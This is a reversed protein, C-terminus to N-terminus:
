QTAESPSMDRSATHRVWVTEQAELDADETLWVRASHGSRLFGSASDCAGTLDDALVLIQPTKLQPNRRPPAPNPSFPEQLTAATTSSSPMKGFNLTVKPPSKNELTYM